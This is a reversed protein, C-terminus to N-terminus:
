GRKNKKLKEIKDTTDRYRPNWKIIEDYIDLAKKNEQMEEYLSALEYMLGFYQSTGKKSIDLAREIWEVARKYEKKKKYCHSIISYCDLVKHQDQCALELEEIAEDLLGQELYAIGLNFHSETDKKEIKETVKKRFTSVIESLEKEVEATDGRLQRRYIGQISKLEEGIRGSLDYYKLEKEDRSIIPIIDTEAFVDAATM